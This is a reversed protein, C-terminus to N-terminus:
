IKRGESRVKRKWMKSRQLFKKRDVRVLNYIHEESTFLTKCKQGNLIDELEKKRM